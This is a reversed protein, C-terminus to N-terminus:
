SRAYRRWGRMAVDQVANGREHELHDLFALILAPTIEPLRITTPQKHLRAQAFSWSCCSPM